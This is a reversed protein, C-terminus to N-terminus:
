GRLLDVAQDSERALAARHPEADPCWEARVAAAQHTPVHQPAGASGLLVRRQRREDTTEGSRGHRAQSIRDIFLGGGETQGFASAAFTTSLMDQVRPTPLIEIRSTEVPRGLGRKGPWRWHVLFVQYPRVGLDTAIQRIRDCTPGLSDALSRRSAEPHVQGAIAPIEALVDSPSTRDM